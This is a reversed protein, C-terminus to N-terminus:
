QNCTIGKNHQCYVRWTNKVAYINAQRRLKDISCGPYANALMYGGVLYRYTSLPTSYEVNNM